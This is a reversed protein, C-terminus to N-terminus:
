PTLNLLTRLSATFVEEGMLNEGLEAPCGPYNTLTEEDPPIAM